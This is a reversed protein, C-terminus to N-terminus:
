DVKGFLNLPWFRILVRSEIKELPICGFARSDTSKPRNDGMLFVCGEPVVVDLFVEGHEAKTEIGPQLYEEQLKEGNLYVKGNEIKVHDGAIGIVRKIYSDKNTELVYYVFRAWLGQPEKEYKAVPNDFNAEYSTMKITSPSEFTVIDGRKLERHFTRVTRDLILRQNEILTPYMSVQQVVTPIGIYYKVLLALIVAIIICYAWELVEKLKPNIEPKM